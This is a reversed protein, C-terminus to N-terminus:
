SQSSGQARPVGGDPPFIRSSSVSEREAARGATELALDALIEDFDDGGLDALGASAIVTHTDDEMEVLSADFTGGGLDYVLLAGRNGKRQTRERHGYEVSAASPENLM